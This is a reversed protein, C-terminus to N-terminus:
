APFYSALNHNFLHAKPAVSISATVTIVEFCRTTDDDNSGTFNDLETHYLYVKRHGSWPDVVTLCDTDKWFYDSLNGVRRPANLSRQRLEFCVVSTQVM